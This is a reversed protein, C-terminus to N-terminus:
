LYEPLILPNNRIIYTATVDPFRLEDGPPSKGNVLASGKTFGPVWHLLICPFRNINKGPPGTPRQLTERGSIVARDKFCTVPQCIRSNLM